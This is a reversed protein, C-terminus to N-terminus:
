APMIANTIWRQPHLTPLHGVRYRWRLGAEDLLRELERVSYARRVSAIGDRACYPFARPALVSVAVPISLLGLLSRDVDFVIAGGDSVRDLERLCLVVERTSFHHLTHSLVAVDWSGSGIGPMHRADVVKAVSPIGDASFRDRLARVFSPNVDNAGLKVPLAKERTREWLTLQLWGSGAAADLIRMPQRTRGRSELRELAVEIILDALVLHGGSRREALGIGDLIRRQAEYITVRSFPPRAHEFAPLDGDLIEAVGEERRELANRWHPNWRM